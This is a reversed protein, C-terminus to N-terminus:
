KKYVEAIRSVEEETFYWRKSIPNQEGKIKGQVLWRRITRTQVGIKAATQRLSYM